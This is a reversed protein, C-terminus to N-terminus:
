PRDNSSRADARTVALERLANAAFVVGTCFALTVLGLGTFFENRTGVSWDEGVTHYGVIYPATMLWAGGLLAVILVAIGLKDKGNVMTM